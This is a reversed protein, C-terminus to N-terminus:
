VGYGSIRQQLLTLSRDAEVAVPSPAAIVMRELAAKYAAVREQLSGQVWLVIKRNQAIRQLTNDREEVTLQTVHNM